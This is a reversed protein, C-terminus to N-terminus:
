TLLDYEPKWAMVMGGYNIKLGASARETSACVHTYTHTYTAKNAHECM